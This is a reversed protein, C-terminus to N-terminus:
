LHLLLKECLLLNIPEKEDWKPHAQREYALIISLM